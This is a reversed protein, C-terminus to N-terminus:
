NFMRFLHEEDIYPKTIWRTDIFLRYRDTNNLTSGHLIDSRFIILDGAEVNSAITESKTQLYLVGQEINYNDLPIWCIYMVFKPDPNFDIHQSSSEGTKMVRFHKSKFTAAKGKYVSKFFKTLLPHETLQSIIPDNDLVDNFSCMKGYLLHNSSVKLGSSLRYSEGVKDRVMSVLNSDFIGKVFVYGQKFLININLDTPNM